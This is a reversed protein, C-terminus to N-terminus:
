GANISLELGKQYMGAILVNAREFSISTNHSQLCLLRCLPLTGALNCFTFPLHLALGVAPLLLAWRGVASSKRCFVVFSLLAVHGFSLVRSNIVHVIQNISLLTM